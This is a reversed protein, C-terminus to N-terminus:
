RCSWHFSLGRSFAWAMMEVNRRIDWPSEGNRGAPTAWWLGRPHWQAPGVEGQAGVAWVDGRSECWLVRLLWQASIGYYAADARAYAEVDSWTAANADTPRDSATGVVLVAVALLAALIVFLRRVKM